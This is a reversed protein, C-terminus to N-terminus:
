KNYNDHIDTNTKTTPQETATFNTFQPFQPMRNIESKNFFRKNIIIIISSTCISPIRILLM